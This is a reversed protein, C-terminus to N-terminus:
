NMSNYAVAGLIFGAVTGLVAVIMATKGLREKKSIAVAALVIGALGFVIPLFIVAVIGFVIALISFLNSSSTQTGATQHEAGPTTSM